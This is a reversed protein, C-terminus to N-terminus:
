DYEGDNVGTVRIANAGADGTLYLRLAYLLDPTRDGEAKPPLNGIQVRSHLGSRTSAVVEAVKENLRALERTLDQHPQLLVSIEPDDSARTRLLGLLLELPEATARAWTARPGKRRDDKGNGRPHYPEVNKLSSRISNLISQLNVITFNDVLRQDRWIAYSLASIAFNNPRSVLESFIQRQWPEDLNGLSSGVAHPALTTRNGVQRSLWEVCQSPADKHTLSLLPMMKQLIIDDPLKRLLESVHSQFANRFYQPCEVDRLSRSDSWIASMRNPLSNQKFRIIRTKSEGSMRRGPTESIDCAIEGRVTPHIRAFLETRAPMKLNPDRNEDLLSVLQKSSCYCRRGDDATAHTFWYPNRQQDLRKEWPSTVTIRSLEPIERVLDALSDELWGLLDVETGQADHWYRLDNWALPPPYEPPPGDTVKTKPQWKVQVPAFSKDLPAFVLRYPDDVGYTYTLVLRCKAKASLPFSPSELRAEYGLDDPDQGQCLPFKYFAKGAPLEFSESVPIRVPVGRLPRIPPTERGVLCFPQFRGDVIIKIFLEPIQDRWLPIAGACQQLDHLRLGGSVPSESVTICVHFEGIGPHNRLSRQDVPQLRQVAAADHWHDDSDMYPIETLANGAAESHELVVHPSREWYFGRTEPVREQLGPDHRAILRTAYTTGGVADVVLVQFGDGSIKSYDIQEFVAAVSRPLPEAEPFRTNINRRVVQLQFDNLFDPVLWVLVPNTFTKSLRRAFAQAAWDLLSKEADAGFFLDASSVRTSEPHLVAFDADFLELDVSERDNEWRQWVFAQPLSDGGPWGHAAYRPRLYTLDVCAPAKIPVENRATRDVSPTPRPIPRRWPTITFKEYDFLVPMEGFLTKGSSYAQGYGNWETVTGARVEFQRADKDIADDLEQLWRWADWVRRYDRHSLLTNNPPLNDWRAIAQAEDTRLWHYITRLLEDEHRLYKKRLELLEALETAFEKVLRNQPLDVSQYRRVAQMYPKGALKERVNRGPRRSLAMFSTANLEKVDRIPLIAQERRPNESLSAFIREISARSHDVIRWLRDRINITGVGDTLHHMVTTFSLPLADGTKPDFEAISSYWHQQELLQRALARHEGDESLGQYVECLNM